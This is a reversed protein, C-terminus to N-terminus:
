GRTEEGNQILIRPASSPEPARRKTMGIRDGYVQVESRVVFAPPESSEPTWWSAPPISEISISRQVLRINEHHEGISELMEAPIYPETLRGSRAQAYKRQFVSDKCPYFEGETGKIIWDSPSATMRGELTQITLRQPTENSWRMEAGAAWDIIARGSELTGDWQVATITVPRSTYTDGVPAPPTKAPVKDTM